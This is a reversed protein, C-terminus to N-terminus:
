ARIPRHPRLRASKRTSAGVSCRALTVEPPTKCASTGPASRPHGIFASLLAEPSFRGAFPAAGVAIPSTANDAFTSYVTAGTCPDPGTGYDDGSGGRKNALQVVTGDPAVASIVLDLDYTHALRVRVEVNFPNGATPVTLPCNITALDLIACNTDTSYSTTTSSGSATIPTTAINNATTTETGILSATATVSGAGAAAPYVTVSLTASAGPAVTGVNCTLGTCTGASTTAASVGMNGSSSFVVKTGMAVGPGSNTVSYTATVPVGVTAAPPTNTSTMVLDAPPGCAGTPVTFGPSNDSISASDGQVADGGLGRASFTQWIACQNAGGTLATDAQLIANRGDVFGPSCPQLKLGDIVLRLALNNGGTGFAGRIDPNYGHDAVMRLYLDWLMTAWIFGVGHPIVAAPLNSYTYNNVAFNPSYPAPRIGGPTFFSYSGVTRSTAPSAGTGTTLALSASRRGPVVSARAVPM